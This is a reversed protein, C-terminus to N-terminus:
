HLASTLQAISIFGPAASPCAPLPCPNTCSLPAAAGSPAGVGVGRGLGRGFLPWFAFYFGAFDGLFASPHIKWRAATRAGPVSASEAVLGAFERTPAAGEWGAWGLFDWTPIPSARCGPFGVGFNDLPAWRTQFLPFPTKTPIQHCGSCGGHRPFSSDCPSVSISLREGPPPPFFFLPFIFLLFSILVGSRAFLAAATLTAAREVHCRAPPWSQSTPLSRSQLFGVAPLPTCDQM